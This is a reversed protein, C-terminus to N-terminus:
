SKAGQDDGVNVGALVELERDLESLSVGTANRNSHGVGMSSM